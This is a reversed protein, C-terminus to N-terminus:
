TTGIEVHELVKALLLPATGVAWAPRSRSFLLLPRSLVVLRRHMEIMSVIYRRDRDGLEAFVEDHIASFEQDISEIQEATLHAPPSEVISTATLPRDGSRGRATEGESGHVVGSWLDCIRGPASGASARTPLHGHPVRLSTVRGGGRRRRPYPTDGASAADLNSRQFRIPGGAGHEGDIPQFREMRLRHRDGGVGEWHETLADLLTAPACVCAERESEDPCLGDLDSAHATGPRAHAADRPSTGCSTSIRCLAHQEGLGRRLASLPSADAVRWTRAVGATNPCCRCMTSM